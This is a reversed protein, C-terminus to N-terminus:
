NNYRLLLEFVADSQRWLMQTGIKGIQKLLSQQGLNFAVTGSSVAVNNRNQSVFSKAFSHNLITGTRTGYFEFNFVSGNNQFWELIFDNVSHNHSDVFHAKEGINTWQINKNGIVYFLTKIM